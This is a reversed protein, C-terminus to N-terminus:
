DPYYESSRSSSSGNDVEKIPKIPKFIRERHQLVTVIQTFNMKSLRKSVRQNDVAKRVTKTLGFNRTEIETNGPKKQMEVESSKLSSTINGISFHLDEKELVRRKLKKEQRLISQKKAQVEDIAHFVIRDAEIKQLEMSKNMERKVMEERLDKEKKQLEKDYFVYEKHHYFKSLKFTEPHSRLITELPGLPRRLSAQIIQLTGGNSSASIPRGHRKSPEFDASKNLSNLPKRSLNPNELEFSNQSLSHQTMM